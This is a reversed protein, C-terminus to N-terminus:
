LPPAPASMVGVFTVFGYGFVILAINTCFVEDAWLLQHSGAAFLQSVEHGGGWVNINVLGHAIKCALCLSKCVTVFKRLLHVVVFGFWVPEFGSPTSSCISVDTLIYLVGSQCGYTVFGIFLRSIKSCENHRPTKTRAAHHTVQNSTHM